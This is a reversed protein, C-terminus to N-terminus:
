TARLLFDNPLADADVKLGVGLAVVPTVASQIVEHMRLTGTWFQEDGFTDYRFVSKGDQPQLGTDPRAASVTFVLVWGLLFAPLHRRRSGRAVNTITTDM